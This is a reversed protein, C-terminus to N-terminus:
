LDGMDDGSGAPLRPEHGGEEFLTKPDPPLPGLVIDPVWKQWYGCKNCVLQESTVSLTGCGNACTLEHTWPCAQWGQILAMQPVTWPARVQTM